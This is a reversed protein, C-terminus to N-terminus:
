SLNSPLTFYFVSGKNKKSEVWISGGKDAIINKVIALGIGTSDYGKKTEATNFVDFIKSQYQDDIGMGNDSVSFLYAEPKKECNVKIVGELKDNYKVANSILNQFIQYILVKEIQLIPLRDEIQFRIHNPMDVAERVSEVVKNLDVHETDEKNAKLEAYELIGRIMEKTKKVQEKLKHVVEMEYAGVKGELELSLLNSLGEISNLPTKIDHSVVHAFKDLANNSRNLETLKNQLDNQIDVLSNTMKNFSVGLQGIENKSRVEV